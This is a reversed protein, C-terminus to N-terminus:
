PTLINTIKSFSSRDSLKSWFRLSSFSSTSIVRLHSPDPLPIQRLSPGGNKLLNRRKEWGSERYFPFSSLQCPSLPGTRAVKQSVRVGRQKCIGAALGPIWIYVVRNIYRFYISVGHSQLYNTPALVRGPTTQLLQPQCPSCSVPDGPLRSLYFSSGLSTKKNLFRGQRACGINEPSSM